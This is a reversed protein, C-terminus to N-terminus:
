FHCVFSVVIGQMHQGFTASGHGGCCGQQQDNAHGRRKNRGNRVSDKTLAALVYDRDHSSMKGIWDRMDLDNVISILDGLCFVDDDFIVLSCKCEGMERQVDSSGDVFYPHDIFM